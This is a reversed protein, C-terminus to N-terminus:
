RNGQHEISSEETNGKVSDAKAAHHAQTKFTVNL